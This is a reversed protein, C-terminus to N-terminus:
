AGGTDPRGLDGVDENRMTMWVMDATQQQGIAREGEGVRGDV